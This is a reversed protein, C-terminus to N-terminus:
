LKDIKAPTIIQVGRGVVFVKGAALGPRCSRRRCTAPSRKPRDPLPEVAVLRTPDSVSLHFDYGICGDEKVTDAVAKCAVACAKDATGPKLRLEAIVYLM